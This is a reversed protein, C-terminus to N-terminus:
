PKLRGDEAPGGDNNSNNQPVNKHRHFWSWAFSEFSSISVPYNSYLALSTASQGQSSTPLVHGLADPGHEM